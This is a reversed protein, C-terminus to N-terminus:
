PAHGRRRPSHHRSIITDQSDRAKPEAVLVDVDDALVGPQRQPRSRLRGAQRHYDRVIDRQCGMADIAVITVIAIVEAAAENRAAVWAVFCRQFKEADPTAFLDGLHDHAATGDRFPRFPVTPHKTSSANDTM